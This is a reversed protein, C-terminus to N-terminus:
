EAVTGRRSREDGHGERLTGNVMEFRRWVSDDEFTELLERETEILQRYRSGARASLADPSGQEVIRGEELVLVHDFDTTEMVEHTVCLVTAQPWWHRTAALLERRSQRDLGRFPEDMLVLRARRKLMARAVRVRQGEGESLLGGGEGLPTDLGQPLRQIVPKLNVLGIVEALNALAEAELGYTLNYILPQNWIQVQPDVWALATHLAAMREADLAQGDVRVAGSSPAHWGLLLGLLTTKGAGSRGVVACRAGAPIGASVGELVTRSGLTLAVNEFRIAVGAGNAAASAGGSMGTAAPLRTDDPADLPELLRLAIARQAPYQLMNGALGRGLAPLQQAWYILLLVSAGEQSHALHVFVILGALSMGVLTIIVNIALSARLHKIRAGAWATIMGDHDTKLTHEAGHTRLPIAGRLADLYYRSMAGRYSAVSYQMEGLVPQAAFPLSLSVIAALLVYPTVSPDLWILGAATFALAFFGEVVSTGLAPVGRLATVAHIRETLDSTLRTRFYRDSLRPLKRLFDMRFRVESRRGLGLLGRGTFLEVVLMTGAFVVVATVASIRQEILGLFKGAELMSQFLLAQVITALAAVPVTAMLAAPTLLGDTKLYAWLRSLVQAEAHQEPERSRPPAAGSTATREPKLEPLVSAQTSATAQSGNAPVGSARVLVAGRVMVEAEEGEPHGDGAAPQVSWYPGPVNMGTEASLGLHTECLRALLRGAPAGRRLARAALLSSVWRTAADLGALAQWRQDDLAAQLLRLAAPSPLGVALMRDSLPGVFEETGAWERWRTAPLAMAHEYVQELLRERPLWRRGQGPDMVQVWKGVSRWLVIFHNAGDPLTTVIIAPLAGADPHFLNDMPVLVQQANLGFRVALDEIVDISTGDVDTYCFERLAEYDVQIRFGSLFSKLSAVGCDTASSQIVEPALLRPRKRSARLSMM